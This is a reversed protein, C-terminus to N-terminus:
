PRQWRTRPAIRGTGPAGVIRGHEYVVQGRRITVIPWGTVAWGAFISFKGNSLIDDDKITRTLDPDWIVLDADAGATIVGKRPYLGFLKAPNTATVEVMRELSIRGKRVGESFLLPMQDQLFNSGERPRQVSNGPDMKEARTYGVHDTNVADVSGRAIAAWLYDRDAQDRLPPAGTFTPGDPRNFADRTLHLYIFRVETFVPLGRARAAEAVRMARQSSMHVLYIPAGTFEAFGIARQTAVEEAEVPHSDAFNQGVLATRGEAVLRDMAGALIAADEAHLQTLLGAKGAAEILRLNGSLRQEFGMGRMFIKPTVGRDRFMTLDAASVKSPDGITLHLIADAITTRRAAEAAQALTDAVPLDPDQGIFAGITTIGGALAARSASEFDDAGPRTGPTRVPNLHVHTDIGGPLVLKGTADFTRANRAPVLGRGIEAIESGRIRLDAQRQGGETVVVGNRILLEPVDQAPLGASLALLVAGAILARNAPSM